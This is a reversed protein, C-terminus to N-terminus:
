NYLFLYSCLWWSRVMCQCEWSIAWYCSRILSPFSVSTGPPCVWSWDCHRFCQILASHSKMVLMLQWAWPWCPGGSFTWGEQCPAAKLSFACPFLVRGPCRQCLGASLLLLLCDWSHFAASSPLTHRSLKRKGSSVEGEWKEFGHLLRTRSNTVWLVSSFATGIAQILLGECSDSFKCRVM